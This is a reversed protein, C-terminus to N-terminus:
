GLPQATGATLDEGSRLNWRQAGSFFAAVDGELPYSISLGTIIPCSM